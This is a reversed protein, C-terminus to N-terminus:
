NTASGSGTNNKPIGFKLTSNVTYTTSNGASITPTCSYRVMIDEGFVGRASLNTIPFEKAEVEKTDVLRYPTLSAAEFCLLGNEVRFPINKFVMNMAPMGGMFSAAVVYLNLTRGATNIGKDNVVIQYANKDTAATSMVPRGDPDLVNTISYYYSAAPMGYVKSGDSEFSYFLNWQPYMYSAIGTGYFGGKFDNVAAAGRSSLTVGNAVEKYSLDPVIFSKSSGGPMVVNKMELSSGEDQMYEISLASQGISYAESNGDTAYNLMYYPYTERHSNEKKECSTLVLALMAGALLSKNINM